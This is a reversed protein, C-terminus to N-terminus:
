RSSQMWGPLDSVVITLLNIAQTLYFIQVAVDRTPGFGGGPQESQAAAVIQKIFECVEQHNLPARMEYMLKIRDKM